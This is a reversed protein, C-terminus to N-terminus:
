RPVAAPLLKGAAEAVDDVSITNICSEEAILCRDERYCEQVSAGSMFTPDYYRCGSVDASIAMTGEGYPGYMAASTPGFLGITPVGFAAAIHMPGTDVSIFLGCLSVLGMLREVPLSGFVLAKSGAGERFPRSSEEDGHAFVLFRVLPDTGLREM